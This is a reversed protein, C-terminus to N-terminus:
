DLHLHLANALRQAAESIEIERKPVERPFEDFHISPAPRTAKVAAQELRRSVAECDARMEGPTSIEEYSSM